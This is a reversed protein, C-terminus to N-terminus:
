EDDNAWQVSVFDIADDGIDVDYLNGLDVDPAYENSLMNPRYLLDTEAVMRFGLSALEKDTMDTDGKWMVTASHVDFMDCVRDLIFRRWDRAAPHFVARHLFLIHFVPEEFGFDHRIETSNVGPEIISSYVSEWGASDADCIMLVNAGDEEARILDLHDIALRAVLIEDDAESRFCMVDITM